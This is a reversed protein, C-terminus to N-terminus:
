DFSTGHYYKKRIQGKRDVKLVLYGFGAYRGDFLIIEHRGDSDTDAIASVYLYRVMDTDSINTVGAYEIKGVDDIDKSKRTILLIKSNKIQYEKNTVANLDYYMINLGASDDRITACSIPKIGNVKTVFWWEAERNSGPFYENNLLRLIEMTWSKRCEVLTAVTKLKSSRRSNGILKLKYDTEVQDSTTSKASVLSAEDYIPISKSTVSDGFSQIPVLLLVVQLFILRHEVFLKAVLKRTIIM